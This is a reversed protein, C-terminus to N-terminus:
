ICESEGEIMQWLRSVSPVLIRKRQSHILHRQCLYQVARTATARTMRALDALDQHSLYCPLIVGDSIPVGVKEALVALIQALAKEPGHRSPLIVIRARDRFQRACIQLIKAARSSDRSVHSVFVQPDLLCVKAPVLVRVDLIFLGPRLRREWDPLISTLGFVDGPLYLSALMEQGTPWLRFLGVIGEHLLRVQNSVDGPVAISVGRSFTVPAAGGPCLDGFRCTSNQRFCGGDGPQRSQRNVLVSGVM